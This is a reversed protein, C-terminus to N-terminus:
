ETWLLKTFQAYIVAQSLSETNQTPSTPAPRSGFFGAWGFRDLAVYITDTM